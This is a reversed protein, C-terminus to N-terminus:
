AAVEATGDQKAKAKNYVRRLYGTLFGIGKTSNDIGDWDRKGDPGFDWGGDDATWHCSDAIYALERKFHAASLKSVPLEGAMEDMMAALASIPTTHKLRSDRRSAEWAVPFIHAVAKWYAKLVVLMAETDSSGDDGRFNYLYGNKLSGEIAGVMTQSAIDGTPNTATKILNALPSDADNNLRNVLLAPVRRKELDATMESDIGPLLEMIFKKDLPRSSNVRVFMERRMEESESVFAVVNIPFANIDADRIAAHRQQGDVIEATEGLPIELIGVDGGEAAPIFKPSKSFVMVMANPIIPKDGTELYTKINNIHAKVEPRQFGELTGDTISRNVHPVTAFTPIEKGDVVFSFLRRGNQKFRIAPVQITSM